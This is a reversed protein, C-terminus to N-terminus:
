ALKRETGLLFQKYKGSVWLEEGIPEYRPQKKPEISAEPSGWNVPTTEIEWGLSAEM